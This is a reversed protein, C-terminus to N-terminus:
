DLIIELAQQDIPGPRLIQFKPGSLDVVTSPRGGPTQGGDLILPVRGGLQALVQTATRANEGGSLNASTVALPGAARLLERAAPHDPVRLGITPHPSLTKPLGPHAPLVITLPGPWFAAALRKAATSVNASVKPLDALDALLIAIAQDQARNKVAFLQQIAAADFALAGLGYVTDTPFAVVGGARLITLASPIAAPDQTPITKTEM